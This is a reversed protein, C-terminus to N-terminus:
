SYILMLLSIFTTIRLKLAAPADIPFTFLLTSQSHFPYRAGGASEDFVESTTRYSPWKPPLQRLM